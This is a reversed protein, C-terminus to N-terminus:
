KKGERGYWEDDRLEEMYQLQFGVAFRKDFPGIVDCLNQCDIFAVIWAWHLLHFYSKKKFCLLGFCNVVITAWGNWKTPTAWLKIIPNSNAAITEIRKWSFSVQLLTHITKNGVKDERSLYLSFPACSILDIIHYAYM